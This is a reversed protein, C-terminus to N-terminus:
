GCRVRLPAAVLALLALLLTTPEPVHDAGSGSAISRGFNDKWTRYTNRAGDRLTTIYYINPPLNDRWVTYDAADFVGDGNFDGSTPDIALIGESDRWAQDMDYLWPADMAYYWSPENNTYYYADTWSTKKFPGFGSAQFGYVSSLDSGSLNVNTLDAHNLNAGTLDANSLDANSLNAGGLFALTLDANSLDAGPLFALTLDANSLDASRLDANFLNAYRLNAYRLNANSLDAGPLGPLFDPPSYFISLYSYSLDAHSLDASSLDVGPLYASSLYASSLYANSLNAEPELNAGSYPHPAGGPGRCGATSLHCYQIPDVITGDRKQYSAADVTSAAFAAILFLTVLRM